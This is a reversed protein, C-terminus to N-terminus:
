SRERAPTKGESKFYPKVKVDSGVAELSSELLLRISMVAQDKATKIIEPKKGLEELAPRVMKETADELPNGTLNESRLLDLKRIIESKELDPDISLIRVDPLPVYLTRSAEDYELKERDLEALNVAYHITAPVIRIIEADGYIQEDRQRVVAQVFARTTVLQSEREMRLLTTSATQIVKGQPAFIDSIGKGSIFAYSAVAAVVLSLLAILKWFGGSSTPERYDPEWYGEDVDQYPRRPRRMRRNM